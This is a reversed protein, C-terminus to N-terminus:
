EDEEGGNQSDEPQEEPNDMWQQEAQKSQSINSNVLQDAKPDDSPKMGIIQRIENSTLIENRTFKDAIEAIDNVPVLKFPDRFAMISQGQTRATKTLFKRRM